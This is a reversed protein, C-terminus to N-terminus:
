VALGKSSEVKNTVKRFLGFLFWATGLITGVGTLIADLQQGLPSLYFANIGPIFVALQQVQASLAILIGTLTASTKAPDESSQTFFTIINNLM